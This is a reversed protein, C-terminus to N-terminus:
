AEVTSAARKILPADPDIEFRAELVRVPPFDAAIWARHTLSVTMADTDLVVTDTIMPMPFMSGDEMRVLLFARHAPLEVRLHGGTSAPPTLNWAELTFGPPLYPPQQDLPAGNWYGFDMDEPLGPHKNELWNDDYTGALALRPAWARGVPGFGAPSQDYTGVIAAMEAANVSRKPHTAIMPKTLPQGPWVIQPAEIEKRHPQGLKRLSDAERREVWGRGLPNSFCVEDLLPAEDENKRALSRGGFAYEWRLPLATIPQPDSFKWGSLWGERMTYPGLIWLRKDLLVQETAGVATARARQRAQNWDAIQAATLAMLPNLPQPAEPMAPAQAAAMTSVKLRTEWRPAPTGGPAHATGVVLVDCRPKFPALDSEQRVSTQVPDGWHEDALCLPMPEEDMVLARWTGDDDRVLQYGVKMAIVQHEDDAPDLASFCLAQFPTLNRFEM